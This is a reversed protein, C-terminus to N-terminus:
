PSTIRFRILVGEVFEASVRRGPTRYSSTSVSLTGEMRQTNSEPRGLIADVEDVTLGKRLDDRADDPRDGRAEDRTDPRDATFSSFDLYKVLTRMVGEPTLAEAPVVNTYRLNFRSGGELRRQRINAEKMQQAEAAAAQNRANECERRKRL